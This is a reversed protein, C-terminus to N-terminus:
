STRIIADDSGPTSHPALPANADDRESLPSLTPPQVEPMPTDSVTRADGPVSTDSGYDVAEEMGLYACLAKSENSSSSITRFSQTVTINVALASVENLFLFKSQRKPLRCDPPPPYVPTVCRLTSPVRHRLCM